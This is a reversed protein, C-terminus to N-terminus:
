GVFNDGEQGKAEAANEVAVEENASIKNFIYAIVSSLIILFFTFMLPFALVKNQLDDAAKDGGPYSLIIIAITLTTNQIGTELAITRRQKLPLKAMTSLGYGFFAAFPLMIISCFYLKWGSTFLDKNQISGSIIAALIFLSGLISALRELKQAFDPYYKLIAMGICVPILVVLLGAFINGFPIQLSDSTFAPGYILLLLPMMFFAASNSIVTMVISLPLDGRSFFTFLNSTSGGPTCGVLVMSLGQEDTVGVIKALAYACLPMLVFQCIFGILPAKPNKKIALLDSVRVTSGLGLMLTFVVGVM